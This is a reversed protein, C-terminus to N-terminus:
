CSARRDGAVIEVLGEIPAAQITTIQTNPLAKRVTKEIAEMELKEGCVSIGSTTLLVIALFASLTLKM